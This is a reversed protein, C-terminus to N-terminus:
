YELIETIEEGHGASLEHYVENPIIVEGFISSLLQLHHIALLNSVCSCDSIVIM